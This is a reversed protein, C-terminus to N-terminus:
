IKNLPKPYGPVNISKGDTFRVKNVMINHFPNTSQENGELLRVLQGKRYSNMFCGYHKYRSISRDEYGHLYGMRKLWARGMKKSKM